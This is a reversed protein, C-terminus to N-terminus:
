PVKTDEEKEQGDKRGEEGTLNSRGMIPCAWAHRLQASSMPCAKHHRASRITYLSPGCGIRLRSSSQERALREEISSPRYGNSLM